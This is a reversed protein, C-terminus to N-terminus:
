LVESVKFKITTKSPIQLSAGTAPNRGIREKSVHKKFVGFESLVVKGESLTVEAVKSLFANVVEKVAEIPNGTEKSVEKILQTKTMIFILILRYM